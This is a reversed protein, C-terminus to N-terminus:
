VSKQKMCSVEAYYGLIASLLILDGKTENVKLSAKPLKTRSKM